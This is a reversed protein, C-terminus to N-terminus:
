IQRAHVYHNKNVNIIVYNFGSFWWTWSDNNAIIIHDNIKWDNFLDYDAEAIAWTTAEHQGNILYVRHNKYDMGRIWTSYSGYALPGLHPNVEVCTNLTKNTLVYSYDSLWIWNIKPSLLLIDGSRWSRIKFALAPNFSWESGDELKIVNEEPLCDIWHCAYPSIASNVSSVTRHEAKFTSERATLLSGSFIVVSLLLFKTNKKEHM